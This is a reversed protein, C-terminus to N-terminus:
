NELSRRIRLHRKKHRMQRSLSYNLSVWFINTGGTHGRFSNMIPRYGTFVVVNWSCVPLFSRERKLLSILTYHVASTVQKFITSHNKEQHYMISTNADSLPYCRERSFSPYRRRWVHAQSLNQTDIKKLSPFSVQAQLQHPLRICSAEYWLNSPGFEQGLISESCVAQGTTMFNPTFSRFVLINLSM